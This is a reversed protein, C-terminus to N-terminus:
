MWRTCLWVHSSALNENLPANWLVRAEIWSWVSAARCRWKNPIILWSEQRVSWWCCKTDPTLPFGKITMGARRMVSYSCVLLVHRPPALDNGEASRRSFCDSNLPTVTHINSCSSFFLQPTILAQCALELCIFTTNRSLLSKETNKNTDQLHNFPFSHWLNPSNALFNWLYKVEGFCIRTSWLRCCTPNKKDYNNNKSCSSKQYIGSTTTKTQANTQHTDSTWIVWVRIADSYSYYSSEEIKVRFM